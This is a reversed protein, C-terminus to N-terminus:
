EGVGLKEEKNFTMLPPVEEANMGAQYQFLDLVEKELKRNLLSLPIDVPCVRECEDCAICRGALHYARVTNWMHNERPAIRIGVWLPDLREVFCETCYCGPCVNRCAYCRLCRDFQEAWFAEREASSKAELEGVGAFRDATPKEEAPPEGILYDYIVPTHQSCALCRSKLTESPTNWRADVVGPCVIGIIFVDEREIQKEGLLLNVARSDCAKVVIATKKGKKNLLYKALNHTCYQDFIFRDVEEPSYAFFPRATIGDTAREYGIVSEATGNELVERAKDRIQQIM